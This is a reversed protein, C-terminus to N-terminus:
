PLGISRLGSTSSTQLQHAKTIPVSKAVYFSTILFKVSLKKARISLDNPAVEKSSKSKLKILSYRSFYLSSLFALGISSRFFSVASFASFSALNLIQRKLLETSFTAL